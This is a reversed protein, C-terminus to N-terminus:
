LREVVKRIKDIAMGVDEEDFMSSGDYDQRLKQVGDTLEKEAEDLAELVESTSAIGAPVDSSVAWENRQAAEVSDLVDDDGLTELERYELGMVQFYRTRATNDPYDRVEYIGNRHPLVALGESIRGKTFSRELAYEQGPGKIMAVYANKQKGYRTDVFVNGSVEIPTDVHM